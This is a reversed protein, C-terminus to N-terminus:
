NKRYPQRGTERIPFEDIAARWQLHPLSKVHAIHQDIKNMIEIHDPLFNPEPSVNHYAISFLKWPLIARFNAWQGEKTQVRDSDVKNDQEFKALAEDIFALAEAPDEFYNGAPGNGIPNRRNKTHVMPIYHATLIGMDTAVLATEFISKHCRGFDYVEGPTFINLLADRCALIEQMTYSHPMVTDPHSSTESSSEPPVKAPKYAEEPSRTTFGIFGFAIPDTDGGRRIPTPEFEPGFGLHDWHCRRFVAEAFIAAPLNLLAMGLQPQGRYYKPIAGDPIRGYPCKFEWLVKTIQSTSENIYEITECDDEDMIVQERFKRTTLYIASMGDPSYCTPRPGLVFISEGVIVVNMDYECFRQIPEEFLNGFMCAHNPTFRSLGVRTAILDRPTQYPNVGEITGMSSGGYLNVRIDKWRPDHQSIGNRATEDAFAQLEATIANLVQGIAVMRLEEMLEAPTKWKNPIAGIAFKEEIAPRMEAIKADIAALPETCKALESWASM